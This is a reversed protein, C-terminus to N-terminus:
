QIFNDVWKVFQDQMEKIKLDAEIKIDRANTYIDNITDVITPNKNELTKIIKNPELVGAKDPYMNRIYQTITSTILAGRGKLYISFEPASIEPFGNDKFSRRIEDKIKLLVDKLLGYLLKYQITGSVETDKIGSFSDLLFTHINDLKQEAFTMQMKLIKNSEKRVNFEFKEREGMLLLICDGCSRKVILNTPPLKNNTYREEEGDEKGIDITKNGFKARIKGRLAIIVIAIIIIIVLTYILPNLLLNFGM